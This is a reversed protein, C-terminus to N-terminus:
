RELLIKWAPLLTDISRSLLHMYKMELAVMEHDNKRLWESMWAFRMGLIMEPLVHFGAADLADSNRLTTLLAPALGTVLAHPEEIGVCGLCNAVDFLAPRIGMFEWDMVAGVSRGHWLINLPHFDGQCLATPLDHWAEFLPVLSGLVPLLAAHIDPQRSKMVTMLDNIYEELIFAPEADFTRVLGGVRNLGAVFDGLHRGREADDVFDPQPLPDGPVFRSLQWHADAHQLVFHDGLGRKYALVPLGMGELQALAQGIRERQELQAPRLCELVWVRGQDDEVAQRSACREPSGPLAIDSRLRGPKLGWLPFIDLM